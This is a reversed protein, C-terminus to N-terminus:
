RYWLSVRLRRNSTCCATHSIICPVVCVYHIYPFICIFGLDIIQCRQTAQTGIGHTTVINGELRLITLLIVVECTSTGKVAFLFLCFGFVFVCQTAVRDLKCFNFSLLLCDQLIM